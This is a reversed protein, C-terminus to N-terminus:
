FPLDSTPEEQLEMKQQEPQETHESDNNTKSGSLFEVSNAIVDISTQNTGDQKQWKKIQVYGTIAIKKGKEVYKGVIDAQQGFFVVNFFDTEEKSYPRQVALSLRAVSRGNSSTAVEAEKTANGILIIQNM